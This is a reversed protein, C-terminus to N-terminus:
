QTAKKWPNTKPAPLRWVKNGDVTWGKALMEDPTLCRREATGHPGVRHKDFGSLSAFSQCCGGFPGGSCHGGSSDSGNFQVGCHHCHCDVAPDYNDVEDAELSLDRGSFRSV